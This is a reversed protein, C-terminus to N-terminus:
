KIRYVEVTPGPRGAGPFVKARRGKARLFERYRDDWLTLPAGYPEGQEAFYDADDPLVRIAYSPRPATSLDDFEAVLFTNYPRHGYPYDPSKLFYGFRGPSGAGIEEYYDILRALAGKTPWLPPGDADPPLSEVILTTGAPLEAEVYEAASTRSDERWARVLHGVDFALQAALLATAAAIVVAQL